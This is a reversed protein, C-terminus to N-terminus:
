ESIGQGRERHAEQGGYGFTELHWVQGLILLGDFSVVVWLLLLLPVDQSLIPTLDGAGATFEEVPAAPFTVVRQRGFQAFFNHPRRSASWSARTNVSARVLSSTTTQIRLEELEWYALRRDFGPRGLGAATMRCGSNLLVTQVSWKVWLHAVSSNSKRLMMRQPVLLIIMLCASSLSARLMLRRKMYAHILGSPNM